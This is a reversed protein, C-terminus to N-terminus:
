PKEAVAGSPEVVRAASVGGHGSMPRGPITVLHRGRWAVVVMGPRSVLENKETEKKYFHMSKGTPWILSGEDPFVIRKRENRWAVGQDRDRVKSPSKSSVCRGELARSEGRANSGSSCLYLSVSVHAASSASTGPCRWCWSVCVKITRKNFVCKKVIIRSQSFDVSYFQSQSWVVVVGAVLVPSATGLGVDSGWGAAAVVVRGWGGGAHVCAGVMCSLRGHLEM